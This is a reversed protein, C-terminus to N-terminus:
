TGKATCIPGIGTEISHPVTLKRGCKGCKGEHWFEIESPLPREVDLMGLFWKIAKVSKANNSMTSKRGHVYGSNDFICGAYSFGGQNDPGTMVSVFFPSKSGDANERQRVKYTFRNGTKTNLLTFTANGAFVFQKIRDKSAIPHREM